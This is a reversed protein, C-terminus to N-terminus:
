IKELGVFSEIYQDAMNKLSDAFAQGSADFVAVTYIGAKKATSVAGINDDFFVAEEKNCGIRKLVEEYIKVDSKPLGFDDCSWIHDFLDYINNRKLCPDLMKHPSATLVSLSCANRKLMSLYDFVGEKLVITDKYRPYAYENMREVMEEPSLKMHFHNKFYEATGFDGLPTIIEIINKPYSINNEELINIMKQSWTPM